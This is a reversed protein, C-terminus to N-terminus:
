TAGPTSPKPLSTTALDMPAVQPHWVSMGALHRLLEWRRLRYVGPSLPVFKNLLRRRKVQPRTQLTTCAAMKIFM